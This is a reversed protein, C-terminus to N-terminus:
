ALEGPGLPRECSTQERCGDTRELPTGDLQDGRALIAIQESPAAPEPRVLARQEPPHAGTAALETRGRAAEGTLTTGREERAFRVEGVDQCAAPEVEDRPVRGPDAALAHGGLHPLRQRRAIGRPPRRAPAPKRVQGVERDREHLARELEDSGTTRRREEDGRLQGQAAVCLRQPPPEDCAGAELPHRRDVLRSREAPSIPLADHLSLTYIETTATDNFFFFFFFCSAGPM